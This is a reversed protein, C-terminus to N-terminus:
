YVVLKSKTQNIWEPVSNLELSQSTGVNLNERQNYNWTIASKM